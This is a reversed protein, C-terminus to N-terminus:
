RFVEIWDTVVGDINTQMKRPVRPPVVVPAAGETWTFPQSALTDGAANYATVTLTHQGAGFPKFPIPSGDYGIFKDFKPGPTTGAYQGDVGWAVMTANFDARVTAIITYPGSAPDGVLSLVIDPGPTPVPTTAAGFVSLLIALDDQKEGAENTGVAWGANPNGFPDSMIVGPATQHKLGGLHGFEHCIDQGAFTPNNGLTDKSFVYGVNAGLSLPFAGGSTPQGGLWDQYSGGVAIIPQKTGAPPPEDTADINLPALLRSVIDFIPRRDAVECPPTKVIPGSPLGNQPGVFGDFALYLKNTASPNSHFATAM